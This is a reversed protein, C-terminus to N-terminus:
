SLILVSYLLLIEDLFCVTEPKFLLKFLKFISNDLLCFSISVTLFEITM